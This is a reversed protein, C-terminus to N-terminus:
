GACPREWRSVQLDLNELFIGSLYHIQRELPFCSVKGGSFIHIGGSKWINARNRGWGYAGDARCMNLLTEVGNGTAWLIKHM